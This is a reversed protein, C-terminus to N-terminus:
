SCTELKKDEDKGPLQVQGQERAEPGQGQLKPGQEQTGSGPYGCQISTSLITSQSSNSMQFIVM